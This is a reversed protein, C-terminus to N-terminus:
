AVEVVGDGCVVHVAGGDYIHVREGELIQCECCECFGESGTAVILVLGRPSANGVGFESTPIPPDGVSESGRAMGIRNAGRMPPWQNGGYYRWFLKLYALAM